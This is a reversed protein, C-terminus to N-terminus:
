RTPLLSNKESGIATLLPTSTGLGSVSPRTTRVSSRQLATVAGRIMSTPVPEPAIATVSAFCRGCATTTAVSMEGSASATARSFAARCPTASRIRNTSHSRIAAASAAPGHSTITLM